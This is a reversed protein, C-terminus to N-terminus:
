ERVFIELKQLHYIEFRMLLTSLKQLLPLSLANIIESSAALLPTIKPTSVCALLLPEADHKFM